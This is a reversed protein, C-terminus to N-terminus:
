GRKTASGIHKVSVKAYGHAKLAGMHKHHHRFHRYHRHMRANANL